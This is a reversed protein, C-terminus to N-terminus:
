VDFEVSLEREFFPAQVCGNAQHVEVAAAIYSTVEIAEGVVAGCAGLFGFRPKRAEGGKCEAGFKLHGIGRVVAWLVLLGSFFDESSKHQLFVVCTRLGWPWRRM